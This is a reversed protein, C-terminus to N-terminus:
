LAVLPDDPFVSRFLEDGLRLRWLARAVDQPDYDPHRMRIGDAALEWAEESMQVALEARRAPGMRRYAEIQLRHAEPSTDPSRVGADYTHTGAPPRGAV